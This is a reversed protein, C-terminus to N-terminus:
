NAISSTLSKTAQIRETPVMEAPVLEGTSRVICDYPTTLTSTTALSLSATYPNLRM